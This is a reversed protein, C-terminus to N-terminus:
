GKHKQAVSIPLHGLKLYSARQFHSDELIICWTAQYMGMLMESCSETEIISAVDSFGAIKM